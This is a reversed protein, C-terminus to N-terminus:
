YVFNTLNAGGDLGMWGDGYATLNCISPSDITGIDCKVFGTLYNEAVVFKYILYTISM